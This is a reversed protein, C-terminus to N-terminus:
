ETILFTVAPACPEREGDLYVEARWSGYLTNATISTAAVALPVRAEIEKGSKSPAVLKRAIPRRYGAFQRSKTTQKGDSTLPVMRSEYLFGQPGFFRVEVAHDGDALEKAHGPVFQVLLNIDLVTTASFSPVKAKSTTEVALKSCRLKQEALAPMAFLAVASLLLLPRQIMRNVM